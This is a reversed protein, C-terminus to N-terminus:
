QEGHYKLNSILSRFPSSITMKVASRVNESELSCWWVPGGGGLLEFDMGDLSFTLDDDEPAGGFGEGFGAGLAPTSLIASNCAM